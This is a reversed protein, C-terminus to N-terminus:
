PSTVSCDDYAVTGTDTRQNTAYVQPIIRQGSATAVGSVEVMTWTDVPLNHVRTTGIKINASYNQTYELFRIVISRGATTPRVFCQATYRRGATSHTIVKNNTMGVLTSAASPAAIRLASAGSREPSAVRRFTGGFPAWGGTGTEFGPDPLLERGSAGAPQVWNMNRAVFNSHRDTIYGAPYSNRTSNSVFVSSSITNNRADIKLLRVHNQYPSHYATMVQAIKNGHVGTALTYNAGQKGAEPHYHGSLVMKINPYRSIFQDWVARASSGGGYHGTAPLRGSHDTYAHTSVIINKNPYASAVQKMWNIVSHRPWMEHTIVLWDLGGATFTQYMNDVKGPEFTGGVNKFRALPFTQNFAKTNRFNRRTNGPGGGGGVTVAATDHNGIAYAYPIGSDDLIDTAASARTFQVPDVAGWNVVDGTHVIFGLDLAAKNNVLWQYRGRMLPNGPRVVENQTDPVQAITFVTGAAEEAARVPADSMPLAPSGGTSVTLAALLFAMPRAGWAKRLSSKLSRNM